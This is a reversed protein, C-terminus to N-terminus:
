RSSGSLRVGNGKEMASQCTGIPCRWPLVMQLWFHIISSCIAAFLIRNHSTTVVVLTYEKTKSATFQTTQRFADLSPHSKGLRAEPLRNIFKENSMMAGITKSCCFAIVLLFTCWLSPRLWCRMCEDVIVLTCHYRDFWRLVKRDTLMKRMPM